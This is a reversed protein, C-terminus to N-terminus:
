NIVEASALWELRSLHWLGCKACPHAGDGHYATNRPDQSFAVASERNWFAARPTGSPRKCSKNELHKRGCTESCVSAGDPM